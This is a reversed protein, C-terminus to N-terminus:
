APTSFLQAQITYHLDPKLGSDSDRYTIDSMFCCNTTVQQYVIKCCVSFVKGIRLLDLSLCIINKEFIYPCAIEQSCLM